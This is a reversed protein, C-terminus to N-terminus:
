QFLLEISNTSGLGVAGGPDRHLFQAYWTSGATVGLSGVPGTSLDVDIGATGAPTTSQLGFRVLQGTVCFAIGNQLVAQDAAALFFAGFQGSPLARVELRLDNETVRTSGTSWLEGLAGTGNPLGRCGLAERSVLDITDLWGLAGNSLGVNCAAAHDPHIAAGDSWAWGDTTASITELLVTGPARLDLVCTRRQTVVLGWHGDPTVALDIPSGAVTRSYVSEPSADTTLDYVEVRTPTGEPYFCLAVEDTCEISDLGALLGSTSALTPVSNAPVLNGGAPPLTTLDFEYLREGTHVLLREGNPTLALDRPVGDLNALWDTGAVSQVSLYGDANTAQAITITAAVEDNMVVSDFVTDQFPFTTVPWPSSSRVLGSNAGDLRVIALEDESRVTAYEGSPSVAVDMPRGALATMPNTEFVVAPPGGGLPALEIVLVHTTGQAPDFGLVVGHDATAAALDNGTLLYDQVDVPHFLVEAGTALDLVHAGAGGRIVAFRDDLSLAVDRPRYGCDLEQLLTPLPTTLDLVLVRAGLSVARTDTVEVADVCPGSGGVTPANHSFVEVGTALDVVYTRTAAATTRAVAYRGDPTIAVDDVGLSTRDRFTTFQASAAPVLAVLAAAAALPTSRTM